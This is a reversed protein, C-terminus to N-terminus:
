VLGAVSKGLPTLEPAGTKALMPGFQEDLAYRPKFPRRAPYLPFMRMTDPWHSFTRLFKDGSAPDFTQRRAKLSRELKGMKDILTRPMYTVYVVNRIEGPIASEKGSHVTRSDWLVLSGEPALICVDRLGKTETFWQYRETPDKSSVVYWQHKSDKDTLGFHDAFEAHHVHSGPICRFAAGKPVVDNATVFGQVCLERGKHLPDFGQDLHLKFDDKFAGTGPAFHAGDMSVLLDSPNCSYWHAWFGAVRENQRIDWVYQQHGWRHHQVLGGHHPDFRKVFSAWTAPDDRRIEGDSLKEATSWAGDNMMACGHEDVVGPIVAVGHNKLLQVADRYREELTDGSATFEFTYTPDAM